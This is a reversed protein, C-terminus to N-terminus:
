LFFYKKGIKEFHPEPSKVDVEIIKGTLSPFEDRCPVAGARTHYLYTRGRL